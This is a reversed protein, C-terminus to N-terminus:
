SVELLSEIVRKKIETQRQTLFDVEDKLVIYQKVEEKLQELSM